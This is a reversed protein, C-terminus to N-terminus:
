AIQAIACPCQDLRQQRGRLRAASRAANDQELNHVRDKLHCCTIELPPHQGLAEGRERHNLVMEVDPAVTDQSLSDIVQQHNIDLADLSGLAAAWPAVMGTRLAHAAFAVKDSIREAQHQEDGDV